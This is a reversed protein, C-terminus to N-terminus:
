GGRDPDLAKLNVPVGLELAYTSSVAAKAGLQTRTAAGFKRCLRSVYTRVTSRTIDLQEAIEQDTLGQVAFDLVRRERRGLEVAPKACM